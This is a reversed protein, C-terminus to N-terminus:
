ECQQLHAALRALRREALVQVFGGPLQDGQPFVQSHQVALPQAELRRQGVRADDAVLDVPGHRETHQGVMHAARDHQVGAREARGARVAARAIGGALVQHEQRPVGARLALHPREGRAELLGAQEAGDPQEARAM